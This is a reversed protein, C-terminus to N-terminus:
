DLNYHNLRSFHLAKRLTQKDCQEFFRLFEEKTIDKLISVDLEEDMIIGATQSIDKNDNLYRLTTDFRSHDAQKMAARYDKGTAEFVETIGVGRFSHPVIGKEEPIGLRKLARKLSERFADESLGEFVRDTDKTEESKLALLQEYFVRHIGTTRLKAGKDIVTVIFWDPNESSVEFDCWRVDLAGSIRFSSRLLFRRVIKKFTTQKEYIFMNECIMEAQIQSTNARTRKIEPSRKIKYFADDDVFEPYLRKLESHLSKLAAIKRNITTNALGKQALHHKFAM